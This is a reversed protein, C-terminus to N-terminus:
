VSASFLRCVEDAIEDTTRIRGGDDCYIPRMYDRHSFWTLQRKAYRRTATKLQEVCDCLSREGRVYPILEKYGIAASATKNKLFLGDGLLAELEECLGEEIMMDVRREIRRYLTERDSFTLYVCFFNKKESLATRRDYETKTMSTTKIIEIARVVRVVNNEHIKQAALPDLECLMRHLAGNGEAEAIAYLEARLAEDGSAEVPYEGRIVSDLYLGTGGCFVPFAGRSAIDKMALTADKVYDAASYDCSLELFDILHHPVEAREEATAKATGIDMKKYIQMSDCSIIEGSLRKAIEISLATKGVATPGAIALADYRDTPYRETTNM